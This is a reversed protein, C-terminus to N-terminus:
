LTLLIFKKDICSLSFQYTGKSFIKDQFRSGFVDLGRQCQYHIEERTLLKMVEETTSIAVLTTPSEPVGPTYMAAISGSTIYGSTLPPISGSLIWVDAPPFLNM